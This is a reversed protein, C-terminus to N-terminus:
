RTEGKGRRAQVQSLHRAVSRSTLGSMDAALGKLIGEGAEPSLFFELLRQELQVRDVSAKLLMTEPAHALAEAWEVAKARREEDSPETNRLGAHFLRLAAVRAATKEPVHGPRGPGRSWSHRIAEVVEHHGDHTLSDLQREEAADEAHILGDQIEVLTPARSDLLRVYTRHDLLVRSANFHARRLRAGVEAADENSLFGSLRDFLADKDDHQASVFHENAADQMATLIPESPLLRRKRRTYRDALEIYTANTVPAVAAATPPAESGIESGREAAGPPSQEDPPKTRM